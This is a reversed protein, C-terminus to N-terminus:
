TQNSYRCQLTHDEQPALDRADNLANATEICIMTKYADNQMDAMRMSKQIWPNWVVASSSGTANIKVTRDLDHLLLPDIVNQYVRDVEENIHIGGKQIKHDDTLADWYEITDLGHISVNSINSVAFYSHLASSITFSKTDCNRTTLALTLTPGITIRLLVKFHYPWLAFTMASSQLQLVLETTNQDPEIAELLEFPSTRAFGHQPLTSDTRHKGFWPWCIPIGGRIAKGTEFYSKSSVWLLPKKGQQQYHFLHGGQLAVKATASKNEIELYEFGNAAKKNTIM